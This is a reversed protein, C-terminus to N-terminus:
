FTMPMATRATAASRACDTASAPKLSSESMSIPALV